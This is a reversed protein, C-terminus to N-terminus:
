ETKQPEVLQQGTASAQQEALAKVEANFKEFNQNMYRCWSLIEAPSQLHRSKVMTMLDDDSCKSRLESLDNSKPALSDLFSKVATAGLNDLRQQNLLVHIPDVICIAETGDDSPFVKEQYFEDVVSPERLITHRLGIKNFKVDNDQPFLNRRKFM